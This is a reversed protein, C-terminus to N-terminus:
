FMFCSFPTKEVGGPTQFLAFAVHMGTILSVYSFSDSQRGTHVLFRPSSDIANLRSTQSALAVYGCSRSWMVAADRHLGDKTLMGQLEAGVPRAETFSQVRVCRADDAVLVKASDRDHPALSLSGHPDEPPIAGM